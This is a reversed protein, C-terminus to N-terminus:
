GKYWLIEEGRDGWDYRGLSTELIDLKNQFVGFAGANVYFTKGGADKLSFLRYYEMIRFGHVELMCKIDESVEAISIEIGNFLRPFLVAQVNKFLIDINYIKGKLKNNLSRILLQSHTASYDLLKFENKLDSFIAM